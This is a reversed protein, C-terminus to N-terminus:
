NERATFDAAHSLRVIRSPANLVVYIAGDPGPVAERVRGAGKLIVEQHLVRRDATTLLRVSQNKLASILGQGQWYPFQEGRYFSFGSTAISPRWFFVPPEVGEARRRPTIIEGTYNIGYTVRPWGYNAGARIRNLEDGGRPGHEAAWLRGTEPHVGLGQPNRHGYSYIGPLAGERGAFPNDEPVSGDPNLRYIKGGPRGLDQAFVTTTDVPWAARDGISFYLRGEPGFAIRSGYQIDGERYTEPPAEFLVQQDQWTGGRIRGRVVRTMSLTDRPPELAHSYALYVWGSEKYSPSTAVDLLGGQGSYHVEPTGRISDPRLEGEVLLRLRGAQETVLATDPGLFDIAWPQSLGEALVETEVKYDLTELTDPLGGAQRGSAQQESAQEEAGHRAEDGGPDPEGTGGCGVAVLCALLLAIRGCGFVSRTSM